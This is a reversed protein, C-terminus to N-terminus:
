RFKGFSSLYSRVDLLLVSSIVEVQIQFGDLGTGVDGQAHHPRIYHSRQCCCIELYWRQSPQIRERSDTLM